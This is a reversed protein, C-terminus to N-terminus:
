EIVEDARLLISPRLVVGIQQATRANVAFEFRTPGEIPLDGPAAGNLIRVVYDATRHRMEVLNPGYGLLCGASAMERWECVTPLRGDVAMRAIETADRFLAPDSGVALAQARWAHMSKFAAGYGTPGSVPFFRLEVGLHRALTEMATKKQDEEARDSILVAIRQADPIAERLLELRKADLEPALMILGTVNGGPRTINAALGAAVPDEGIFSMVIPITSTARRAALIASRSVAVIVDPQTTVLERALEAMAEGSGYRVEVRLNHDQAFGYEALKALTITRMPSVLWSSSDGPGLVGLRYIRGPAQAGAKAAGWTLLGAVFTRRRM